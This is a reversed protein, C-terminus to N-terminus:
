FQRPDAGRRRAQSYLPDGACTVVIPALLQLLTFSKWEKHRVSSRGAIWFSHCFVEQFKDESLTDSVRGLLHILGLKTPMIYVHPYGSM